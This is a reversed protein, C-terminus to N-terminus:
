DELRQLIEGDWASKELRIAKMHFNLLTHYPNEFVTYFNQNASQTICIDSSPQATICVGRSCGPIGLLM